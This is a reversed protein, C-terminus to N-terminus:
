PKFENLVCLGKLRRGESAGNLMFDYNWVEWWNPSAGGFPLRRPNIVSLLRDVAVQTTPDGVGGTETAAHVGQWAAVAAQFIAVLDFTDPSPSSDAGPDNPTHASPSVNATHARSTSM